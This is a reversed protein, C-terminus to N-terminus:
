TARPSCEVVFGVFLFIRTESGQGICESRQDGHAGWLLRGPRTYQLMHRAAWRYEEGLSRLFGRVSNRALIIDMRTKGVSFVLVVGAGQQFAFMVELEDVSWFMDLHM